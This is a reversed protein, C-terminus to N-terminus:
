PSETNARWFCESRSIPGLGGGGAVDTESLAKTTANCGEIQVLRYRLYSTRQWGPAAHDSGAVRGDDGTPTGPRHLVHERRVGSSRAWRRADRARQDPRCSQATPMQRAGLLRALPVAQLPHRHWRQPFRRPCCMIKRFTGSQAGPSPHPAESTPLVQVNSLATIQTIDFKLPESSTALLGSRPAGPVISGAAGNGARPMSPFSPYTTAPLEMVTM